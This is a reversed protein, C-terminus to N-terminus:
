LSLATVRSAWAAWTGLAFLALGGLLLIVSVARKLGAGLGLEFLINRLGYFGHFLGAGLLVVYSIM